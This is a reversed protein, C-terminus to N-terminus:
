KGEWTNDTLIYALRKAQGQHDVYEMTAPFVADAVMLLSIVMGM